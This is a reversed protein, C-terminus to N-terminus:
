ASCSTTTRAATSDRGPVRRARAGAARRYVGLHCTYMLATMHDPSWGPKIHRAFSGDDAVVDEDSYLMDLTPDTTIHHAVHQLPTPPSPTTTTWCPSTTAPPSPWPPTPPRRLHGPRHRPPHPPHPPRLRRPAAPRRHDPPQHLRRRGPVAGLQHLDPQPRLRNGRRAHACPSRPRAHARLHAAWRRSGGGTAAAPAHAPRPATRPPSAGPDTLAPEVWIARALESGSRTVPWAM